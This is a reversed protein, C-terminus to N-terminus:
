FGYGVPGYGPVSVYGQTNDSNSNGASFRTSWFNDGGSGKGSYLNQQAAVFLNVLPINSGAYGANGNSDLWYIGPQIYYGLIYSLVAWEAQPLERGNILVGTNGSSANRSLVGFNHGPFMFGYAPYGLVGYLGSVNDYWYNGPLPEVGYRNKMEQIQEKTLVVDNIIVDGTRQSQTVPNEDSKTFTISQATAPNINGYFDSEAMTLTLFQNQFQAIFVINSGHEGIRGSLMGNQVQGTLNYANNNITISGAYIGTEAKYLVVSNKGTATNLIYTGSYDQASISIQIFVLIVSLFLEKM